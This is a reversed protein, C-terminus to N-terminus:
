GATAANTFAPHLPGCPVGPLFKGDFAGGVDRRCVCAALCGAPASNEKGCEQPNALLNGEIGPSIRSPTKRPPPRNCSRRERRGLPREAPEQEVAWEVEAIFSSAASEDPDARGADPYHSQTGQTYRQLKGPMIQGRAFYLVAEGPELIKRLPEQLKKSRGGPGSERRGRREVGHLDTFAVDERVPFGWPSCIRVPQDPHVAIEAAPM